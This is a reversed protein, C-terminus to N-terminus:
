KICNTELDRRAIEIEKQNPMTNHWRTVDEMFSIGKGKVTDAIIVSPKGNKKLCNNLADLLENYNHGDVKHVNTKKETFRELTNKCLLLGLVM